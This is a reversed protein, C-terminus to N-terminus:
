KKKVEEKHKMMQQNVAERRQMQKLQQKVVAKDPGNMVMKGGNHGIKERQDKMFALEIMPIKDTKTCSCSINVTKCEAECDQCVTFKCQCVLIDFLKDLSPLFIDRKKATCQRYELEKSTQWLREMKRIVGYPDMLSMMPNVDQWKRRITPELIKAADRATTDSVKLMEMEMAALIDSATYLQGTDPLEKPAGFVRGSSHRSKTKKPPM